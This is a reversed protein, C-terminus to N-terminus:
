DCPCEIEEAV